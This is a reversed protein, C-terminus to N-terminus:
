FLFTGWKNENFYDGAKELDAPIFAYIFIVIKGAKSRWGVIFYVVGSFVVLLVYFLLTGRSIKILVIGQKKLILRYLLYSNKRSKVEM